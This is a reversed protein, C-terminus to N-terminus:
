KLVAEADVLAVDHMLNLYADYYPKHTAGVLNLVRCGPHAATVARINSVMRLNRVEWSAVYQRGYLGASPQVLNAHLDGLVTQRQSEPENALRYLELLDAPSKLSKELETARDHAQLAGAGQKWAAHVADDFAQTEDAVAGDSTHDDVLYVRELGLRVALAVGVDFTENPRAGTQELLKVTEATLGDTARREEAPLRRWQVAASPAEGAALFLAALRRRDSPAPQTPWAAFTERIASLAAPLDLGLAKQAVEPSSCYTNFSDPYIGEYRKLHECQEGSLNEATIVDPRFTALKDLLASLMAEDVRIPLQSLHPSGLTLVRTAPGTQQGKWERPDFAPTTPGLNVPAATQAPVVSASWFALLLCFVFKVIPVKFYSRRM